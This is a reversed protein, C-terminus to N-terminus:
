LRSSMLEPDHAGVSCVMRHLSLLSGLARKWNIQDASPPITSSTGPAQVRAISANTSDFRREFFGDFFRFGAALLTFFGGFDFFAFFVFAFVFAAVVAFFFFYADTAYTYPASSSSRAGRSQTHKFGHLKVKRLLLLSSSICSTLTLCTLTHFTSRSHPAPNFFSSLQILKNNINQHTINHLM